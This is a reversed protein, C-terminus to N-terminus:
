SAELTKLVRAPVGGVMVNPPVSRNVLSYAAVVAGSGIEVGPLLCSGAGIWVGPGVLIKKGSVPGARKTSSGLAHESTVFKVHHGVVVNDGLEIPGKLDLYCGYNIFCRRGTRFDGRNFYGGGSIRTLRGHKHGLLRFLFPRVVGSVKGRGLLVSAVLNVFHTM